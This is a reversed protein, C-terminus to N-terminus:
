NSVGHESTGNDRLMSKVDHELRRLEALMAAQSQGACFDFGEPTRGAEVDSIALRIHKLRFRLGLVLRERDSLSDLDVDDSRVVVVDCLTLRQGVLHLSASGRRFHVNM